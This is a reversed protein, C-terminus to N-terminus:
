RTRWEERVGMHFLNGGADMIVGGRTIEVLRLHDNIADGEGLMRGNLRVVRAAPERDYVHVTLTIDPLSDRVDHPLNRVGPVSPPVYLGTAASTPLTESDRAPTEPVPRNTAPPPLMAVFGRIAERIEVRREAPPRSVPDETARTRQETPPPQPRSNEALSTTQATPTGSGPRPDPKGDAKALTADAAAPAARAVSGQGPMDSGLNEVSPRVESAEGASVASPEPDPEAGEVVTLPAPLEAAQAVDVGAPTASRTVVAPSDQTAVAILWVLAAAFNLVLAVSLVYPWWPTKAPAQDPSAPPTSFSPVEGRRREEESDNLAELIFSM